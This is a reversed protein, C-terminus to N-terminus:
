ATESRVEADIERRLEAFVREVEHEFQEHTGPVEDLNESRGMQELKLCLDALPTAGLNGSSSKLSHAVSAIRAADGDAIAELLHQRSESATDLYTRIVSAM